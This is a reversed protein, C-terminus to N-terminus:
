TTSMKTLGIHHLSLARCSKRMTFLGFWPPFFDSQTNCVRYPSLRRLHHQHNRFLRSSLHHVLSYIQSQFMFTIDICSDIYCSAHRTTPITLTVISSTPTSGYTFRKMALSCHNLRSSNSNTSTSNTTPSLDCWFPIVLSHQTVALTSFGMTFSPTM